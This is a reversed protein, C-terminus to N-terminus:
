YSRFNFICSPTGQFLLIELRPWPNRKRKYLSSTIYSLNLYQVIRVLYGRVIPYLGDASLHHLVEGELCRWRCCNEAKSERRAQALARRRCCPSLGVPASCRPQDSNTRLARKNVGISFFFLPAHVKRVQAEGPPSSSERLCVPNSGSEKGPRPQSAPVLGWRHATRYGWECSSPPLHAFLHEVGVADSHWVRCLM